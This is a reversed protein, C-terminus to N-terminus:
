RNQTGRVRDFDASPSASSPKRLFVRVKCSRLIAALHLSFLIQSDLDLFISKAFLEDPSPISQDTVAAIPKFSILKRSNLRLEFGPFSIGILLGLVPRDQDASTPYFGWFSCSPFEWYM